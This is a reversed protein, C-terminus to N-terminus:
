VTMKKTNLANQAESALYDVRTPLLTAPDLYWDQKCIISSLEDTQDTLSIKIAPATDLNVQQAANVQVKANNLHAALVLGPLHAPFDVM